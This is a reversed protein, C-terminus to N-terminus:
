GNTEARLVRGTADHHVVLRRAARWAALEEAPARLAAAVEAPAPRPFALRRDEGAFRRREYQARLLMVLCLAAAIGLNALAAQIVTWPRDPPDVPLLHQVFPPVWLTGLAAVLLYFWTVWLVATLGLDRWRAAASRSAADLILPPDFAAAMM